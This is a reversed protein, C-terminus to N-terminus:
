PEVNATAEIADEDLSGAPKLKIDAGEYPPLSQQEPADTFYTADFRLVIAGVPTEGETRQIMETATLRCDSVSGVLTEDMFVVNEVQLALSDLFNDVGETGHAVIEVALELRRRMNRPAENFVEANENLGYVSVAPLEEEHWYARFRNMNFTKVVALPEIAAKLMNLLSLRIQERPHMPLTM